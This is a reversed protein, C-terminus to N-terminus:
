ISARRLLTFTIVGVVALGFAVVVNEWDSSHLAALLRDGVVITTLTGPLLGFFTGIIFDRFRIRLAGAFINVITYPAAPIMRIVIVSYIGGRQLKAKIADLRHNVSSWARPTGHMAGFWFAAAAAILLGALGYLATRWPGFIVVLALTLLPRPFFVFAAAIYSGIIIFPALPHDAFPASLLVLTDVDLDRLHSWRWSAIIAAGVVLWATCYLAVRLKTRRPASAFDSPDPDLHPAIITL